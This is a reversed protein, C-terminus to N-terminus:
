NSPNAPPYIGASWQKQRFYWRTHFANTFDKRRVLHESSTDRLLTGYKDKLVRSFAQAMASQNLGPRFYVGIWTLRKGDNETHFEIREVLELSSDPAGYDSVKGSLLALNPYYAEIQSLTTAQTFHMVPAYQLFHTLHEVMAPEGAAANLPSKPRGGTVQPLAVAAPEALSDQPGLVIKWQVKRRSTSAELSSGNSHSAVVGIDRETVISYGERTAAAAINSASSLGERLTIQTSKLRDRYVSFAIKEVMKNTAKRTVHTVSQADYTLDPYKGKLTELTTDRDFTFVASRSFLHDVPAAHTLAAMFAAGLLVAIVLAAPLRRNCDIFM